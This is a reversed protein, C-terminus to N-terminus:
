RALELATHAAIADYDRDQALVPVRARIAIASILCDLLRRPTVGERRCTLYIGAADEWDGANRVSVMRCAALAGKIRRRTLPDRAGALLEMAVPETTVLEAESGLERKLREHTASGTARFLEIWASSDILTL